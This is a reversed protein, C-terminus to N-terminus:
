FILLAYNVYLTTNTEPTYHNTYTHMALYDGCYTQNAGTMM